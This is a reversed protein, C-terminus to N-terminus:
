NLNVADTKMHKTKQHRDFFNKFRTSYGCLNCVWFKKEVGHEASFHEKLTKSKSFTAQCKQCEYKLGTHKTIEHHALVEAKICSFGCDECNHLTTAVAEKFEHNKKKSKLVQRLPNNHIRKHALLNNKGLFSAECIDCILAGGRHKTFRHNELKYPRDCSFNCENCSHIKNQATANVSHDRLNASFDYKDCHLLPEHKRRIHRVLGKKALYTAGCSKCKYSMGKHIIYKHDKLISPRDCFFDCEDCEIINRPKRVVRETNEKREDKYNQVKEYKSLEEPKGEFLTEEIVHKDKSGLIMSETKGIGDKLSQGLGGIEGDDTNENEKPKPPHIRRMHKLMSKKSHMIKECIDCYKFYSLEVTNQQVCEGEKNIEQSNHKRKMHRLFSQDSFVVQECLLCPVANYMHELDHKRRMHRKLSLKDFMSKGCVDCSVGNQILEQQCDNDEKGKETEAPKHDTLVHNRLADISALKTECFVCIESEETPRQTCSRANEFLGM